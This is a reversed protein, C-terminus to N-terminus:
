KSSGRLVGSFEGGRESIDGLDRRLQDLAFELGFIRALEDDPLTRSLGQGRMTTVAQSQVGFAADVHSLSLVRQGRSFTEASGVLFESIAASLDIIPELLIGDVPGPLPAAMTRGLIALDHRLRRLTRCVPLPDVNDTLFSARERLAEEAATEARASAGRIRAHAAEIAPMDLEGILGRPLITMLDAMATLAQAVAQALAEHARAPLIVLSVLLAIASGVAIEFMREYASELPGLVQLNPTLILIIFTIPTVRYAPKLAALLALPPLGIALAVGPSVIGMRHLGVSIIVGAIAGGLSGVFRDLMAKLSGGVSAQMVIIATLVAWQNQQLGLLLGLAYALFCAATMRVALRTHTRNRKLWAM